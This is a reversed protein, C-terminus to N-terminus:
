GDTAMTVVPIVMAPSTVEHDGGYYQPQVAFTTLPPSHRHLSSRGQATSMLCIGGDTASTYTNVMAVASLRAEWVLYAVSSVATHMLESQLLIHKAKPDPSIPHEMWQM